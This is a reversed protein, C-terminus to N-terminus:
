DLSIPDVSDVDIYWTWSKTRRCYEGGGKKIDQSVARRFSRERSAEERLFEPMSMEGKFDSLILYLSGADVQSGRFRQKMDKLMAIEKSLVSGIQKSTSKRVSVTRMTKFNPTLSKKQINKEAHHPTIKM